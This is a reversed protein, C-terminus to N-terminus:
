EYRQHKTCLTCQDYRGTFLYQMTNLTEDDPYRYLTTLSNVWNDSVMWGAGLVSVVPIEGWPDDISSTLKVSASAKEWTKYRTPSDYFVLEMDTFGRQGMRYMHLLCGGGTTVPEQGPVCADQPQSFAPDNYNGIILEVDILRIGKREIFCHAHDDLREVVIKECLKKPLGSSERGSYAGMLAGPGSLQLNLFYLGVKEGYRAMLGIGGEMYWPAFTPERIDVIYVYFIPYEPSLLELPPPLLEKVKPDTIGFLQIGEQNNMAANAMFNRLSEKPVFYSAKM